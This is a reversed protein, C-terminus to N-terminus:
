RLTSLAGARGSSDGYLLPHVLDPPTSEPNRMRRVLGVGNKRGEGMRLVVASKPSEASAERGPAPDEPTGGQSAHAGPGPYAIDRAEGADPFVVRSKEGGCPVGYDRCRKKEDGGCGRM